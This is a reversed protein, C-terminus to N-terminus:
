APLLGLWDRLLFFLVNLLFTGQSIVAMGFGAGFGLMLFYRGIKASVGLPGKHERTFTFYSLVTIVGVIVVLANVADYANGTTLPLAISRLQVIINATPVGSLAISLGVSTIIALPYKIIWRTPRTFQAYLLLGLIVPIILTLNKGQLLPELYGGPGILRWITTVVGWGTGMALVSYEAWRSWPNEKYYIMSFFGLIVAAGLSPALLAIIDTM